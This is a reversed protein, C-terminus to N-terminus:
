NSQITEYEELYARPIELLKRTPLGREKIFRLLEGFLTGVGSEYNRNRKLLSVDCLHGKVREYLKLSETNLFIHVPHFAFVKIGPKLLDPEFNDPKGNAKRLLYFDDMFYIPIETVGFPMEIPFVNKKGYMLYNSTYRIGFDKVVPLMKSSFFLSHNRLSVAEPYLKKLKKLGDKVQNMDSFNPHIGIECLEEDVSDLSPYSGTCFVTFKVKYRELIGVSHALVEDPVWDTDLTMCIM